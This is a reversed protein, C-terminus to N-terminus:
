ADPAEDWYARDDDAEERTAFPGAEYGQSDRVYWGDVRRSFTVMPRPDGLAQMRPLADAVTPRSM